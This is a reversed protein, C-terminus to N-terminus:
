SLRCLANGNAFTNTEPDFGAATTGDLVSAPGHGPLFRGRKTRTIRFIGPRVARVRTTLDQSTIIWECRSEM